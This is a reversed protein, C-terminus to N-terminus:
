GRSDAFAFYDQAPMPKAFLFGQAYHCGNEILMAEQAETEVGECLVLMQLSDGLAIVQRLINRGRPSAEASLLMARDIKMIDMDLHQLMAISSYGTCFDDMSITFGMKKLSAIIAASNNRGEKTDFDVFATETIELDISGAPLQYRDLIRQLRDLYGPERIHHGSQNVSIPLLPKGQEMRQVQLRCATELVYYDFELIFGNREFVPIFAGPMVFGLEPSQWRTLSEAGIIQHTRLDYKPQLWVQFENNQLAKKMLVEIEKQRLRRKQLEEDYIGISENHEMAENQATDADAMLHVIDTAADPPISRLGFTYEMHVRYGNSQLLSTCAAFREAANRLTMGDELCGLVYLHTLNSAIGDTLIWANEARVNEVLQRIGDAVFQRDLSAKLLDMRRTSLVMIFLRGAQRADEHKNVLRAAEREFWQINTLGTLPNHYALFYIESASRQRLRMVYLLVGIVAFLAVSVLAISQWPHRVIYARLSRNKEGQFEHRTIIEAIRAEGLHRIEKDLLRILRPDAQQSIAFSIMHSFVVNGNTFLNLYEGQEIDHQVTIAKLFTLDAQGNNVADMCEKITDFYQLQEPQYNKEVYEHTYFHNRACAVIPAKGPSRDRRMVPVYNLTLYPLSLAANNEQGWNYNSYFDAVVDVAGTKLSEIVESSTATERFQFDLGLDLAMLATIEAIIGRPKGDEFYAFPKQGPSLTATVTPNKRIFDKEEPTLLLPSGSNFYKLFLQERLQPSILLLDEAARDLRERLETDQPRMAFAFRGNFLHAAMPESGRHFVVGDVYGDLGHQRFVTVMPTPYEHPVLEYDQGQIYGYHQLASVIKEAPYIHPVFGLRLPSGAGLAKDPHLILGIPANIVAHRSLSLLPHDLGIDPLASVLDVEGSFLRHISETPLGEVFELRYGAYNAVSQLYDYIFGRFYGDEGRSIYNPVDMYGVRLTPREQGSATPVCLLLILLFIAAFPFRKM